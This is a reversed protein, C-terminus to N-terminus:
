LETEDEDDIALGDKTLNAGDYSYHNEEYVWNDACETDAEFSINPFAKVIGEFIPDIFTLGNDSYGMTTHYVEDVIAFGADETSDFEVVLGNETEEISCLKEKILLDLRTLYIADAEREYKANTNPHVTTFYHNRLIDLVGIRLAAKEDETCQFSITSM